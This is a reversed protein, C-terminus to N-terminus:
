NGLETIHYSVPDDNLKSHDQYYMMMAHMRDFESYDVTFSSAGMNIIWNDGNDTMVGAVSGPIGMAWGSQTGFTLTIQQNWFKGIGGRIDQTIGIDYDSQVGSDVNQIIINCPRESAHPEIRCQHCDVISEDEDFIYAIKASNPNICIGCITNTTSKSKFPKGSRKEVCLGINKSYKALEFLYESKNSIQMARM